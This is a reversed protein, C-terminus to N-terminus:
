NRWSSSGDAWLDRDAQDLSPLPGDKAAVTAEDVERQADDDITALVQEAVGAAALHDRYLLVPDRELWTRVEEPDRYKAPDARSHGGHRYTLAEVLVPGEGARAQDLSDKAVEHVATVDNGDVVIPPLGYAGSRDAAPRAVATVSDIPTYEMWLNNECVFVV